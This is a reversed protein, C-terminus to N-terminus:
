KWIYGMGYVNTIYLHNEDEIKKRLRNINVALAHKDMLQVGEQWLADLFMNYTLLQGKNEIFKKLIRYETPTISCVKQNVEVIALNFDIKLFDDQYCNRDQKERKLMIAIKKLLVKMSFPKTVYDDGGFEYGTLVDTELDRASLFLVICKKNAKVWKCFDFGNGDPLNVDLIIMDILNNTVITKGQLCTNATLVHYGEKKLAYSIGQNLAIDDELVLINAM